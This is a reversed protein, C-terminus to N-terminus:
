SLNVSREFGKTRPQVQEGREEYQGKDGNGYRLCSLERIIVSLLFMVTLITSVVWVMSHLIKITKTSGNSLYTIISAGFVMQLLLWRRWKRRSTGYHSYAAYLITIFAAISEMTWLDRLSGSLGSCPSQTCTNPLSIIELNSRQVLLILIQPKLGLYNSTSRTRHLGAHKRSRRRIHSLPFAIDYWRFVQKWSGRQYLNAWIEQSPHERM